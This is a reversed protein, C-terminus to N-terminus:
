PGFALADVESSSRSSPTFGVGLSVWSAGGRWVSVAKEGGQSGGVWVLTDNFALITRSEMLPLGDAVASVELATGTWSLATVNVAAVGNVTAFNGTAFLTSTGFDLDVIAPTESTATLTLSYRTWATGDWRWLTNGGVLAVLNGTSDAVIRDVIGPVGSGIASWATGSWRAVHSAPVFSTLDGSYVRDFGGAIVISGDTFIVDSVGRAAGLTEAANEDISPPLKYIPSFCTGVPTYRSIAYFNNAADFAFRGVYLSRGVTEPTAPNFWSIGPYPRTTASSGTVASVFLRGTGDFSMQEINFIVGPFNLTTWTGNFKDIRDSGAYLSAGSVSGALCFAVCVIALLSLNKMSKM